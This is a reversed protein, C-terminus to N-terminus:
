LLVRIPDLQAPIVRGASIRKRHRGIDLNGGAIAGVFAVNPLSENAWGHAVIGLEVLLVVDVTPRNRFLRVDVRTVRGPGLHIPFESLFVQPGLAEHGPRAYRGFPALMLSAAVMLGFNTGSSSSRGRSLEPPM